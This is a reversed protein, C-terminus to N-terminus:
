DPRPGFGNHNPMTPDREEFRVQFQRPPTSVWKGEPTIGRAVAQHDGPAYGAWDYWWYGVAQRCPEWPGEDVSIEVGKLQAQAGLRFTYEKSLIVDRRQPYDFDLRRAVKESKETSKARRRGKSEMRKGGLEGLM